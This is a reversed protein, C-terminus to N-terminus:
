PVLFSSGQNTATLTHGTGDHTRLFTRVLVDTNTPSAALSDYEMFAESQDTGSFTGDSRFDPTVIAVTNAGSVDPIRICYVGTSAQTVTVGSTGHTFVGAASVLGFARV